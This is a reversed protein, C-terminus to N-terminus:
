WHPLASIFVHIPVVCHLCAWCLGCSARFRLHNHSLASVYRCQHCSLTGTRGYRPQGPPANHLLCLSCLPGYYGTSCMKLMYANPDDAMLSTTMNCSGADQMVIMTLLETQIAFLGLQSHVLACSTCSMAGAELRPM